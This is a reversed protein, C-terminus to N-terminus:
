VPNSGLITNILKDVVMNASPVKLQEYNHDLIPKVRRKFDIIQDNNWNGIEETLKVLRRMRTNPDGIQDYSEDWFDSFTKFGMDRMARLAGPVGVIIFPHKHKVPKFSKETLTLEPLNFNTETVISVLSTKYYDKTANVEDTCMKNVDKEDDLVLPLKNKFRNTAEPSIELYNNNTLYTDIWGELTTTPHELDYKSFSIHSRDVLNNKELGLALEIRHRRFRRNWMLFLKEPVTETDYEPVGNAEVLDPRTLQVAFINHSSPYSIIALREEPRDPINHQRCYNDYMEKANMCGTLYIIKNLPLGHIGRFYGHMSNMHGSNMFAEVSHDILIYGKNMRILRILHWPIHSFELIGTRGCFYNEFSTRWTLSYPFIFPDNSDIDVAIAPYMEFMDKRNSFLRNWLDDAWFNHSTTSGGAAVSAFSLVNPLETNWIPGRPGIWSYCIKIKEM